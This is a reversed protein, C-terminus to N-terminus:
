CVSARCGSVDTPSLWRRPASRIWRTRSAAPVPRHVRKSFLEAQTGLGDRRKSGADTRRKVGRICRDALSGVPRHFAQRESERGRSSSKASRMTGAAVPVIQDQGVHLFFRQALKRRLGTMAHRDVLGPSEGRAAPATQADAREEGSGAAGALCERGLHERVLQAEIEVADVEGCHDALVDAFGLLIELLDEIGGLFAAHQQEEILGVREEALAGFDLVAVVAVGVDLDAVQQLAHLAELAERDQGGIQLDDSSM